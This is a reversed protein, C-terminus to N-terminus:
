SNQLIEVMKKIKESNVSIMKFEDYNKNGGMTLNENIFDMKSAEFSKASSHFETAQTRLILEELNMENVGSGPMIKIKGETIKVLKSILEIGEFATNKGGSTLVRTVNLNILEQLALLPNQM